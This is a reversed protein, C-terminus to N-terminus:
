GAHLVNGRWDTGAEMVGNFDRQLKEIVQGLGEYAEGDKTGGNWWQPLALQLQDILPKQSVLLADLASADECALVDAWLARGMDKCQTKNKAPGQPFPADRDAAQKAAHGNGNAARAPASAAAANGDDDEAPVGFATMLSYRRAYTLASGAGQADRKNAPVYLKGFRREEGGAHIVVTEVIVGDECPSTEQTVALGHRAFVPRVTDLVSSLDAYKSKFHPNIKDKAVGEIENLANVLAFALTTPEVKSQATMEM